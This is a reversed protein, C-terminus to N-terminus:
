RLTEPDVGLRQPDLGLLQALERFLRPAARLLRAARCVCGPPLEVLDAAERLSQTALALLAALDRFRLAATRTCSEVRVGAAGDV